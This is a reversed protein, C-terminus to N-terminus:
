AEFEDFIFLLKYGISNATSLLSHIGDVGIEANPDIKDALTVVKKIKGESDESAFGIKKYREVSTPIRKLVGKWLGSLTSNQNCTILCNIAIRYREGVINALSTKGVGRDGYLIIHQGIEKVASDIRMLQENRGQFFSETKIPATPSYVKSLIQIKEQIEM